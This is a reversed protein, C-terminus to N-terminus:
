IVLKKHLHTNVKLLLNYLSIFYAAEKYVSHDARQLFPGKKLVRVDIQLNYNSTFFDIALIIQVVRMLIFAGLLYNSSM